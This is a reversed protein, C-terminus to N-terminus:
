FSRFDFTSTFERRDFRLRIEKPINSSVFSIRKLTWMCLSDRECLCLPFYVISTFYCVFSRVLWFFFFFVSVVFTTPMIYVCATCICINTNGWYNRDCNSSQTTHTLPARYVHVCLVRWCACITRVLRKTTKLMSNARGYEYANAQTDTYIYTRQRQSRIHTSQLRYVCPKSNVELLFYRLLPIHTHIHTHTHRHAGLSM